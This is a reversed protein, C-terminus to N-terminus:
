DLTIGCEESLYEDVRDGAEEFAAADEELQTSLHELQQAASEPDSLDLEDVADLISETSSVIAEWDDAIEAPADVERMAEVAEDLGAVAGEPDTVDLNETADTLEDEAAQVEECFGDATEDGTPETPSNADPSEGVEGPSTASGSADSGDGGCGALLSLSLALVIGARQLGRVPSEKVIAALSGSGM